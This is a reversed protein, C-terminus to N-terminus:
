CELPSVFLFCSVSPPLKELNNGSLDLIELRSLLAFEKYPITRIDNRSIDLIRLNRVNKFLENKYDLHVLLRNGGLLLTEMSPVGAFALTSNITFGNNSCAFLKLKGLGDVILRSVTSGYLFDSLHNNSIDLVELANNPNICIKGRPGPNPYPALSKPITASMNFVRIHKGIPFVVDFICSKSPTESSSGNGNGGATISANQRESWHCASRVLEQESVSFFQFWSLNQVISCSYKWSHRPAAAASTPTAAETAVRRRRSPFLKQDGIILEELSPHVAAELLTFLPKPQNNYVFLMNESLKLYRLKPMLLLGPSVATFGNASLDIFELNSRNLGIFFEAFDLRTIQGIANFTQIDRLLLTKLKRSLPAAFLDRINSGLLRKAYSLDLVELNRLCQIVSKDLYRIRVNLHLERLHTSGCFITNTINDSLLYRFYTDQSFARLEFKRLNSLRDLPTNNLPVRVTQDLVPSYMTFTFNETDSPLNNVANVYTNNDGRCDAARQTCHCGEPCVLSPVYSAIGTVLLLVVLNGCLLTMTRSDM